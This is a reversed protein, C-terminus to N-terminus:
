YRLEMPGIAMRHGATAKIEFRSISKGVDDPVLVVDADVHGVGSVTTRGIEQGSKGYMVIAAFISPAPPTEPRKIPFLPIWINGWARTHSAIPGNIRFRVERFDRRFDVSLLSPTAPSILAPAPSSAQAQHSAGGQAVGPVLGVEWDGHSVLVLQPRALVTFKGLPAGEYDDRVSRAGGGVAFVLASSKTQSDSRSVLYYLQVSAHMANLVDTRPVHLEVAGVFQVQHAIQRVGTPSDWTLVIEDGRQMGEYLPIVVELGTAPMDIVDLYGDVILAAQPPAPLLAPSHSQISAVHSTM